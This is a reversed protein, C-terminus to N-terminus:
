ISLALNAIIPYHDSPFCGDCSTQIINYDNITVKNLEDKFLIWDIRFAVKPFRHGEFDHYTNTDLSEAFGAEIFADRFGASSYLAYVTGAEPLYESLVPPPYAAPNEDRPAWARSNFDGALFVPGEEDQWITGLRTIILRSAETRARRGRHDLHANCLLLRQGSERNRLHIWTASRVNFADWGRSWTGPTQSLFFSGSRVFCFRNRRWFIPNYTAELSPQPTHTAHGWFVAHDPLAGRLVDVNGPQVEQAAVLDPQWTRLLESVLPARRSWHNCAPRNSVFGGVNFSM